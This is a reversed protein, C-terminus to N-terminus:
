DDNYKNYNMIGPLERRPKAEPWEKPYGLPTLAVVRVAKPLQLIRKVEKEDFAGIWCTGLGKSRAALTLHDFIIALDVSFSKMYQGMHTFCKEENACGVILLPAESIFAQNRCAPVLKKQIAKDDIVIFRWPQLNKASPAKRVVEFIEQIDKEDIEDPLYSRVSRRKEIVEFLDM